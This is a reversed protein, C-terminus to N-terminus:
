KEEVTMLMEFLYIYIFVDNGLFIFLLFFYMFRSLCKEICKDIYFM